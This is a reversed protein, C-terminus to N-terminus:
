VFNTPPSAKPAIAFLVAHALQDEAPLCGEGRMEPPTGVEPTAKSCSKQLGLLAFYCPGHGDHEIDGRSVWRSQKADEDAFQPQAHNGHEIQGHTECFHHGVSVQHVLNGMEGNLFLALLFPILAAFM